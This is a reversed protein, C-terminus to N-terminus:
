CVKISKIISIDQHISSIERMQQLDWVKLSKASGSYLQNDYNALAYIQTKHAEHQDTMIQWKDNESEIEDTFDRVSTPRSKINKRASTDKTASLQMRTLTVADATLSM